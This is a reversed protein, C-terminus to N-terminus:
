ITIPLNFVNKLYRSYAWIQKESFAGNILAVMLSKCNDRYAGNWEQALYMTAASPLFSGIGTFSGSLLGNAYFGTWDGDVVGMLIRYEGIVLPITSALGGSDGAPTTVRWAITDSTLQLSIMSTDDVRLRALMRAASSSMNVLKTVMLVTFAGSIDIDCNGNDNIGDFSIVPHQVQGWAWSADTDLTGNDGGSGRDYATVGQGEDLLYENVTDSPPAGKYLNVEETTSLDDTGIFVDSIIGVLGNGTGPDDIDGIVMDGGNPGANVDGTLVINGGDVRLRGIGATDSISCIVHYWQDGVWTTIDSVGDNAAIDFLSGSIALRFHLKGESGRIYADLYDTGNLFKGFLWQYDASAATHTVDLKFRLSIWLKAAANHVAGCNINSSVSGNFRVGDCTTRKQAGTLALPHGGSVTSPLTTSNIQEPLWLERFNHGKPLTSNLDKIM